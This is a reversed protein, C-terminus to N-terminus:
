KVYIVYDYVKYMRSHSDEHPVERIHGDHGRERTLSLSKSTRKWMYRSQKDQNVWYRATQELLEYKM